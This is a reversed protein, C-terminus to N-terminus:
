PNRHSTAQEQFKNYIDLPIFGYREYLDDDPYIIDELHTIEITVARDEPNYRVKYLKDTRGIQKITSTIFELLMAAM